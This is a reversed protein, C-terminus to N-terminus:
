FGAAWAERRAVAATYRRGIGTRDASQYCYVDEAAGSTRRAEEDSRRRQGLQVLSLRSDTTQMISWSSYSFRDWRSVTKSQVGPLIRGRIPTWGLTLM